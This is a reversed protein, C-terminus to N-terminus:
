DGPHSVARYGHLGPAGRSAYDSADQRQGAGWPDAAARRRARGGRGAPETVTCALHAARRTIVRTKGSGPGALILLPGDTHAVAERQPGSLDAFLREVSAETGSQM